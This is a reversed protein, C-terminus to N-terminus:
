KILETNNKMVYKLFPLLTFSKLNKRTLHLYFSLLGQEPM